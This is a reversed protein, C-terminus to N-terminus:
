PLKKKKMSKAWAVQPNQRLDVQTKKLGLVGLSGFGGIDDSGTRCGFIGAFRWCQSIKRSIRTFKESFGQVYRLNNSTACKQGNEAWFASFILFQFNAFIEPCFVDLVRRACTSCTSRLCAFRRACTSCVDLVDLAPAFRRACTSCVDLVDLAPDPSRMKPNKRLIRSKESNQPQNPHFPFHLVIQSISKKELLREDCELLRSCRQAGESIYPFQSHFDLAFENSRRGTAMLLTVLNLNTAHNANKAWVIDIFSSSITRWDKGM